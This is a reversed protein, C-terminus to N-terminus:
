RSLRERTETMIDRLVSFEVPKVLHLDFGADHVKRRMSPDGWGTQAIIRTDVLDPDTRLSRCIDLGNPEPMGIDLLVLHPRFDHAAYLGTQGDSFVRATHGEGEVLWQLTQGLADNDDIILVRLADAIVEPAARIVSM